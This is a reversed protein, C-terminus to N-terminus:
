SNKNLEQLFFNRSMGKFNEGGSYIRSSPKCNVFYDLIKIQFPFSDHELTSNEYLLKSNTNSFNKSSILIM